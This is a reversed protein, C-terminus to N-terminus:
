DKVCRLSWGNYRGLPVRRVLCTDYSMGRGWIATALSDHRTATLFTTYGKLNAFDTGNNWCTGAPRANFSTANTGANFPKWNSIGGEKLDDGNMGIFQLYNTLETWEADSPIHWGEPSIGRVNSPNSTSSSEGNMITEWLYLRGYLYGYRSSDNNYYWSGEPTYYNLNQAMWWQNGIKVMNYQQGDREDVFQKFEFPEVRDKKCSVWFFTFLALLAVWLRFTYTKM